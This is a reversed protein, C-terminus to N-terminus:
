TIVKEACGHHINEQVIKIMEFAGMGDYPSEIFALIMKWESNLHIKTSLKTKTVIPDM